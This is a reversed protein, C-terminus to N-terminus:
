EDDDDEVYLISRIPIRVKNGVDTRGYLWFHGIIDVDSLELYTNNKNNLYVIIM